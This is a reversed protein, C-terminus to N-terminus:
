IKDRLLLNFSGLCHMLVDCIASTDFEAFHCASLLPFWVSRHGRFNPVACDLQEARSFM